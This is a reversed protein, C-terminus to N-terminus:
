YALMPNVGTRAREMRNRQVMKRYVVAGDLDIEDPFADSDNLARLMARYLVDENMSEDGAGTMPAAGMGTVRMQVGSLASSVAAYMTAALQSRNLVETRGGAHGVVEPGNEGAWFMTGHFKGGSAAQPIDHWSGGYFAGGKAYSGMVYGPNNTEYDLEAYVKM